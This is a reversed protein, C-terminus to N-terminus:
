DEHEYGRETLKERLVKRGRSMRNKVASLTLGMEEAIRAATQNYYYYRIFIHRDEKGLTLLAERLLRDRERVDLLKEAESDEVLLAEEEPVTPLKKKRLFSMAKNRAVQVLWARLDQIPTNRNKWLALFVDMCLEDVDERSCDGLQNRIVASVYSGYKRIADDLGDRHSLHIKQLITKEQTTAEERRTFKKPTHM